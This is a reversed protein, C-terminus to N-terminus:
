GFLMFIFALIFGDDISDSRSKGHVLNSKVKRGHM